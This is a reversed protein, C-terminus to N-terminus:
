PEFTITLCLNAFRLPWSMFVQVKLKAADMKKRFEKQLKAKEPIDRLEKSELEQLRKQTEALEM